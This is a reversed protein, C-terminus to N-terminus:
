QVKAVIVEDNEFVTSFFEGDNLSFDYLEEPKRRVYIYQVGISHLRGALEPGRSVNWVEDLQKRRADVPQNHTRLSGTGSLFPARDSFFPVYPTSQDYENKVHAQLIADQPVQDRIFAFAALEQASIRTVQFHDQYIESVLQLDYLTRPVSVCILLLTAMWSLVKTYKNQSLAHLWVALLLALVGLSVAFFNYVNFMGSVQLTTHGLIFFVLLPAAFFACYQLNTRKALATLGLYGFIRSGFISLTTIGGGIVWVWLVIGLPNQATTYVDRRLWWEDYDLNEVGLFIRTWELPAFFLGGAGHNPPLYISFFLALFVILPLLTTAVTMGLKKVSIFTLAHARASLRLWSWVQQLVQLGIVTALGGAAFLAFYVKFGAITAMMIITPWRWVAQKKVWWYWLGLMCALFLCRAFAHPMNFFLGTGTEIMPTSFNLEHHFHWAFLYAADSAIASFFIALV